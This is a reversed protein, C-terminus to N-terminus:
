CLTYDLVLEKTTQMPHSHQRLTGLDLCSQMLMLESTFFFREREKEEMYIEIEITIIQHATFCRRNTAM